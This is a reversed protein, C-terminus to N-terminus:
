EEKSIPIRQSRGRPAAQAGFPPRVPNRFNAKSVITGTRACITDISGAAEAMGPVAVWGYGSPLAICARM